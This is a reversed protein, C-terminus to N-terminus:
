KNTSKPGKKLRHNTIENREEFLETLKINFTHAITTIFDIRSDRKAHELESVYTPTTDLIEALEEQTWSNKLRYYVINNALIKRGNLKDKKM